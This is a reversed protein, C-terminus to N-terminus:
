IEGDNAEKIGKIGEIMKRLAENAEEVRKQLCRAMQEVARAITEIQGPEFLSWIENPPKQPNHGYRKKYAKKAQRRNM